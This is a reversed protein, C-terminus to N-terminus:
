FSTHYKGEYYFELLQRLFFTVRNKVFQVPYVQNCPKTQGDNQKVQASCILGSVKSKSMRDQYVGPFETTQQCYPCKLKLKAIARDKLSAQTETKMIPQAVADDGDGGTIAQTHQYKKSDIGFCSAIFDM